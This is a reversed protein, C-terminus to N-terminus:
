NVTINTNGQWTDLLLTVAQCLSERDLWGAVERKTPLQGNWDQGLAREAVFTLFRDRWPNALAFLNETVYEARGELLFMQNEMM